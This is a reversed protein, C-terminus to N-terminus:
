WDIESRTGYLITPGAVLWVRVSGYSNVRSLWKGWMSTVQALRFVEPDCGKLADTDPVVRDLNDLRILLTTAHEPYSSALWARHSIAM